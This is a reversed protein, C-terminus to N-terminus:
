GDLCQISFRSDHGLERRANLNGASDASLYTSQHTKFAIDDGLQVAAFTTRVSSSDANVEGNKQAVLYKGHYSKFAFKDKGKQEVSWIEWLDVAVRNANASGDKEAGVYKGYASKIAIKNSNCETLAKISELSFLM